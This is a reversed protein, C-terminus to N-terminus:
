SCEKGLFVKRRKKQDFNESFYTALGSLVPGVAGNPRQQFCIEVVHRHSPAIGLLLQKGETFESIWAIELVELDQLDLM